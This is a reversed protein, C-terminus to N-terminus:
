VPPSPAVERTSPRQRRRVRLEELALRRQVCAVGGRVEVGQTRRSLGVHEEARQDQGPLPPPVGVLERADGRRAAVGPQTGNCLPVSGVLLQGAVIQATGDLRQLSGDRVTGARVHVPLDRLELRPDGPQEEGVCPRGFSAGDGDRPELAAPLEGGLHHLDEEEPELVDAADLPVDRPRDGEGSFGLEDIRVVAVRHPLNSDHEGVRSGPGEVHVSQIGREGPGHSTVRRHGRQERIKVTDDSRM